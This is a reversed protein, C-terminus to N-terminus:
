MFYLSLAFITLISFIILPHKNVIDNTSKNLFNLKNTNNTVFNNVYYNKVQSHVNQVLTNGYENIKKTTYSKLVIITFIAILLTIIICFYVKVFTTHILADDAYDKIKQSDTYNNVDNYYGVADFCFTDSLSVNTIQTTEAVNDFMCKANNKYCIKFKTTIENALAENTSHDNNTFNIESTACITCYHVFKEVLSLKSDSIDNEDNNTIVKNLTIVNSDHPIEGEALCLQSLPINNLKLYANSLNDQTM